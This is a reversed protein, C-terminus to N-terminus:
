FHFIHQVIYCHVKSVAEMRVQIKAKVAAIDEAPEVDLTITKRGDAIYNRVFIQM